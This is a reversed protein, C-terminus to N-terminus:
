SGLGQGAAQHAELCLDQSKAGDGTLMASM